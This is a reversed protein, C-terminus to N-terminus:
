GGWSASSRQRASIPPGPATLYVSPLGARRVARLSPLVTRPPTRATGTRGRRRRWGGEKMDALSRPRGAPRLYDGRGGNARDGRLPPSSLGEEEELRAALNRLAPDGLAIAENLGRARHQRRLGAGQGRGVGANTASGSACRGPVIAPHPLDAQTLLGNHAAIHARAFCRFLAMPRAPVGIRARRARWLRRTGSLSRCQGRRSRGAEVSSRGGARTALLRHLARPPRIGRCTPIFAGDDALM